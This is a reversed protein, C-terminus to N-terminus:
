HTQLPYVLEPFDNAELNNVCCNILSDAEVRDPEGPVVFSLRSGLWIWENSVM